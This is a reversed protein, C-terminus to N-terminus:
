AKRIMPTYFGVAEQTGRNIECEPVNEMQWGKQKSTNILGGKSEMKALHEQCQKAKRSARRARKQHSRERVAAKPQEKSESIKSTQRPSPNLLKTKAKRRKRKRAKKNHASNTLSDLREADCPAGVPNHIAIPLRNTASDQAIIAPLDGIIQGVFEWSEHELHDSNPGPNSPSQVNDRIDMITSENGMSTNWGLKSVMKTKNKPQIAL